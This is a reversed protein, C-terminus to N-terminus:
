GYLQENGIAEKNNTFKWIYGQSQSFSGRCCKSIGSLGIGSVRSAESLSPYEAILQGDLSYQAVRKSATTEQGAKGFNSNKPGRRADGIRRKAEDSLHHGYNPNDKGAFRGKRSESLKQRHSETKPRGKLANRIKEISDESIRSGAMGEGGITLNYLPISQGKLSSIVIREIEKASQESLDKAVVIHKFGDWGYKEIARWFYTSKKYGNGNRFRESLKQSTIGVYVNGNTKNIHAYVYWKNDM